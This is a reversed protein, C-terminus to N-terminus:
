KPDVPLSLTAAVHFTPVCKLAIAKRDWVGVIAEVHPHFPWPAYIWPSAQRGLLLPLDLLGFQFRDTEPPVAILRALVSFNPRPMPQAANIAIGTRSKALPAYPCLPDPVRCSGQM